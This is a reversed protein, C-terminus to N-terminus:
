QIHNAPVHFPDVPVVILNLGHNMYPEVYATVLFLGPRLSPSVHIYWSTYTYLFPM